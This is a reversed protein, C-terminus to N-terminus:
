TLYAWAAVAGGVVAAAKGPNRKIVGKARDWLSEGQMATKGTPALDVALPVKAGKVMVVATLTASEGKKVAEARITQGGAEGQLRAVSGEWGAGTLTATLSAGGREAQVQATKGDEALWVEVRASAWRMVLVGQFDSM